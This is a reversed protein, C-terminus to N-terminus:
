FRKIRRCLKQLKKATKKCNKDNNKITISNLKKKMKNCINSM